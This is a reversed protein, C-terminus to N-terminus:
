KRTIQFAEDSVTGSPEFEVNECGNIGPVSLYIIPENLSKVESPDVIYDGEFVGILELKNQEPDYLGSAFYDTGKIKLLILPPSIHDLPIELSDMLPRMSAESGAEPGDNGDVELCWVWIPHAMLDELTIDEVYKWSGYRPDSSCRNNLKNISM